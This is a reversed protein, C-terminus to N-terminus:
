QKHEAKLNIIQQKLAAIEEDKKKLELELNYKEESLKLYMKSITSPEEKQPPNISFKGNIAIAENTSIKNITFEINYAECYKDAFTDTPKNSIYTSLVATAYNLKKAISKKPIDNEKLDDLEMQFWLKKFDSFSSSKTEENMPRCDPYNTLGSINNRDIYFVGYGEYAKNITISMGYAKMFKDLFTDSPMRGLAMSFAAGTMGLKAAIDTKKVGRQLMWDVELELWIKKFQTINNVTKSVEM